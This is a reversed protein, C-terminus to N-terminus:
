KIFLKQLLTTFFLPIQKKVVIGRGWINDANQPNAGKVQHVV